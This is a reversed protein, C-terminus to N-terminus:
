VFLRQNCVAVAPVYAGKRASCIGVAQMIRSCQPYFYVWTVTTYTGDNKRCRM